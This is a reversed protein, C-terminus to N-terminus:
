ATGYDNWDVLANEFPLMKKSKYVWFGPTWAPLVTIGGKHLYEQKGIDFMGGLDIGLYQGSVDYKMGFHHAHGCAVHKHFIAAAAAAVKAADRSFTKPHELRWDNGLLMTQQDTTILRGKHSKAVARGIVPLLDQGLLINSMRNEHNGWSWYVEDFFDLLMGLVSVTIEMDEASSGRTEKRIYHSIWALDTFDGVIALRKVKLKTCVAFLRRVWLMSLYPSHWDATLACPGEPIRVTEEPYDPLLDLMKTIPEVDKLHYSALQDSIGLLEAIHRTTVGSQRMAILEPEREKPWVGTSM